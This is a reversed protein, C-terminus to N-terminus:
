NRHGTGVDNEDTEPQDGTSRVWKGDIVLLHHRAHWKYKPSARSGIEENGSPAVADVRVRVYELMNWRARFDKEDADAIATNLGPADYSFMVGDVDPRISQSTSGLDDNPLEVRVPFPKPSSTVTGDPATWVAKRSQQRTISFSVDPESEIGPPTVQFRMLIANGVELEIPTLGTGSFRELQTKVPDHVENVEISSYGPVYYVQEPTMRDHLVSTM